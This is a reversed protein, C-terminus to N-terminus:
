NGSISFEHQCEPCMVDVTRNGDADSFRDNLEQQRKEYEEQSIQNNDSGPNLNPQGPAQGHEGLDETELWETVIAEGLEAEVLEANIDINKAATQNLALALERGEPTNIDIDDFQLAYVKNRDAKIIEVNEYGLEGAKATRKNGGILVGNKDMTAAERFGFRDISKELLIDGQVTGKNFNKDDFVIDKIKKKAM